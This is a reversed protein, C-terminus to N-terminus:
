SVNLRLNDFGKDSRTEAEQEIANRYTEILHNPLIDGQQSLFSWQEGAHVFDNILKSLPLMPVIDALNVVRYHNPILQSHAEVFERNGPRPSAYSYIQLNPRLKPFYLALDMAAFTALAGGLSHGSILLPQTLDLSKVAERVPQALNENYFSYFGVHVQGIATGNVPHLYNEQLALVDQLYEDQRQTGRLILLNAKPSTLLFGYYVSIQQRLQVVQKVQQEIAAKTQDVHDQLHSPHGPVTALASIPLEFSINEEVPESAKFSAIQQYTNFGQPYLPLATISGDYDPQYKGLLYQQTCLKNGVILFKSWERNYPLTPSRLSASQQITILDKVSTLDAEFATQVLKTPDYLQQLKTQEAELARRQWHDRGFVGALTAGLGSWLLQRRNLKM